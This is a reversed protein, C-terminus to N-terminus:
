DIEDTQESVAAVRGDAGFDVLFSAAGDNVQPATYRWTAGNEGAFHFVREPRGIAARVEAPTMGTHVATEQAASVSIGPAAQAAAAAVALVATALLNRSTTNM